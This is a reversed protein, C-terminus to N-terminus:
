SKTNSVAIKQRAFKPPFRRQASSPSRRQPRAAAGSAWGILINGFMIKISLSDYYNYVDAVVYSVGCSKQLNNVAKSIEDLNDRPLEFLGINAV